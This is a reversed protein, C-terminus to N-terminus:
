TLTLSLANVQGGDTWGGVSADVGSTSCMQSPGPRALGRSAQHCVFTAGPWQSSWPSLVCIQLWYDWHGINMSAPGKSRVSPDGPSVGVRGLPAPQAPGQPHPTSTQWGSLFPSPVAPTIHPLHPPVPLELNALLPTSTPM